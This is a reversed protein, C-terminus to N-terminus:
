GIQDSYFVVRDRGDSKAKYLGKDAKKFIVDIDEERFMEPRYVGFSVTLRISDNNSIKFEHKSVNTRIREIINHTVQVGTDYMLIAFEEGGYRGILDTGRLGSRCIETVEKLVKDGVLHGYTDNVQKFYDIDMIIFSVKRKEKRAETMKLNCLEFFHRRNSIGTLEDKTALTTLVKTAEAERTIDNIVLVMGTFRDKDDFMNTKKLHFIKFRSSYKIEFVKGSYDKNPIFRLNNLLEIVSDGKHIEIVSKFINKASSNYNIISDDSDVVIVGESIYDFIKKYTVPVLSFSGYKLLAYLWIVGMPAYAFTMIDIHKPAFEMLYIAGIVLPLLFTLSNIIAKKKFIKKSKWINRMSTIWSITISLGLVFSNVYYWIGRELIVKTLGSSTDISTSSYFLNHLNNTQVIAFTTFSFALVMILVVNKFASEEDINDLSFYLFLFPFFALGIYEIRICLLALELSGSLLEFMYGASHISAAMMLLAFSIAVNGKRKKLAFISISLCILSTFLLVIIMLDNIFM